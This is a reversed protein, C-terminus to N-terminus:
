LATPGDYYFKEERESQREFLTGTSQWCRSLHVIARRRHWIAFMVTCWGKPGQERHRALLRKAQRYSVLLLPISGVLTRIGRCVQELVQIHQIERSSLAITEKM